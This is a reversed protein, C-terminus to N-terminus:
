GSLDFRSGTACRNTLAFVQHKPSTSIVAIFRQPVTQIISRTAKMKCQTNFSLM